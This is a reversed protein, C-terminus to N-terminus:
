NFEKQHISDFKQVSDIARLLNTKYIVERPANHILQIIHKEGRAEGTMVWQAIMATIDQKPLECKPQERVSFIGIVIVMFLVMVGAFWKWQKRIKNETYNDIATIVDNSGNLLLQIEAQRIQKNM